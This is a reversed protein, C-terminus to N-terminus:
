TFCTNDAAREFFFHKAALAAPGIFTIKDNLKSLEITDSNFNSNYRRCQRSLKDAIIKNEFVTGFLIIKCANLITATNTLAISVLDIKHDILNSIDRDSDYSKITEDFSLRNAFEETIAMSSVETELCGYRNCRCRRGNRNIIYHGIEAIGADSGSLLEGNAAIASGIGPGWKLFLVSEEYIRHGYILEAVAFARVNNDIVVPLGIKEELKNIVYKNDWLGTESKEVSGIVCISTCLFRNKNKATNEFLKESISLMKDVNKIDCFSESEYRRGDLGAVSVTIKDLEANICLAYYDDLRLSLMIKRRGARASGSTDEGEEAILGDNILQNCLKTVAAPTLGLATAIDKRSMAGNTGLLYLVSSINRSKIEKLNLGNQEM